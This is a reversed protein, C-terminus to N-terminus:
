TRPLRLTFSSGADATSVVTIDGGMARALDRSIALGLGVGGSSVDGGTRLQVFPQFIVQLKDAPIGPGTDKVIISASKEDHEVSVDIRGGSPTYKVANGILNLLIQDLRDRDARVTLGDACGHFQYDIDKATAQPEIMEALRTVAELVRVDTLEFQIKGAEIRAFNLVQDVLSSLHKRSRQLRGLAEAQKDAIPGLVGLEMLEAYGAIANLPTRLEHSMSALFQAKAANAAEAEARANRAEEFLRANDIAYAARNALREAFWLDDKTFRRGSEAGIFSIAGITRGRAAMPVVMASRVQLRRLVEIENPKANAELFEQSIDPYFESKGTRLVQPVGTPADYRPPNIRNFEEAWKVLSPDRHMVVINEFRGSEDGVAISCWDAVDEVALRAVTALTQRYDLSSALAESAEALLRQANGAAKRETIDQGSGVLSVPTGNADVIVRGRGHVWRIAGDPLVIRHDFSFPEKTEIAHAITETAMPRDDPHIMSTYLDRTIERSRPELGYVRYMQDSWIIRNSRLDLEWSGLQASRQAQALFDQNRQLEANLTALEETTHELEEQLTQSEEMQIELEINQEQLLQTQDALELSAKRQRSALFSILTGVVGFAIFPIVTAPQSPDLQQPGVVFTVGAIALVIATVAPGFGGIWASAAVSVFCLVFIVRQLQAQFLGTFFLAIAMTAIAVAYGIWKRERWGDAFAFVGTHPPLSTRQTSPTVTQKSV